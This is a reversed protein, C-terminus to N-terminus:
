ATPAGTDLIRRAADMTRIGGGVEVHLKTRKLIGSVVDVNAPDGDRAGDLDVVHLWEAGAEEFLQAQLVPDDNYM